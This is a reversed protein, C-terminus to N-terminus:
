YTDENGADATADVKQNLKMGRIHTSTGKDHVEEPLTHEFSHKHSEPRHDIIPNGKTGITTDDLKAYEPEKMGSNDTSEKAVVEHDSSPFEDTTFDKNLQDIIYDRYTKSTGRSPNRSGESQNEDNGVNESKNSM